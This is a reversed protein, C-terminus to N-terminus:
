DIEMADEDLSGPDVPENLDNPALEEFEADEQEEVEHIRNNMDNMNYPILEKGTKLNRPIIPHKKLRSIYDKLEDTLLFYEEEAPEEVVPQETSNDYQYSTSADDSLEEFGDVEEVIIPTQPSNSGSSNEYIRIGDFDTSIGEEYHPKKPSSANFMTDEDSMQRKLTTRRPSFSTAVSDDM